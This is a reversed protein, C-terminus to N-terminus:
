YFYSRLDPTYVYGGGSPAIYTTFATSINAVVLNPSGSVSTKIDFYDGQSVSDTHPTTDFNQFDTGTITAINTQDAGNKRFTVIRSAAGGPQTDSNVGLDTVSFAVPAYVNVDSEVTRNGGIGGGFQYRTANSWSAASAWQPSNGNTTPTCRFSWGPIRTTPTGTSVVEVSITDGQVFSASHTTDSNDVASDSITFTVGTSTGNKYVTFAYSKGVGPSGSLAGYFYDLTFAHPVVVCSNGETSSAAGGYPAFYNTGSTPLTINGGSVAIKASSSGTDTTFSLFATTAAITGGVPEVRWYFLDTATASVGDGPVLDQKSVDTDALTVSLGTSAGNKYLTVVISKGAGPATSLNVCLNAITSPESLLSRVNASSSQMTSHGELGIFRVASTSPSVRVFSQVPRIM